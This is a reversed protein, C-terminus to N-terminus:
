FAGWSKRWTISSSTLCTVLCVGDIGWNSYALILLQGGLGMMWGVKEDLKNCGMNSTPIAISRATFSWPLPLM